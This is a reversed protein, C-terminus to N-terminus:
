SGYAEPDNLDREGPSDPGTTLAFEADDFANPRTGWYGAEQADEGEVVHDDPNTALDIGVQRPDKEKAASSPSKSEAKEAM